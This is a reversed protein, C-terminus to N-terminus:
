YHIVITEVTLLWRLHMHNNVTLVNQHDIVANM